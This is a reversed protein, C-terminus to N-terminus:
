RFGDTQLKDLYDNPDIEHAVSYGPADISMVKGLKERKIWFQPQQEALAIAKIHKAIRWFNSLYANFIM